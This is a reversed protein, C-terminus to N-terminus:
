QHNELSSIHISSDPTVPRVVVQTELVTVRATCVAAVGKMMSAERLTCSEAHTSCNCAGYVM